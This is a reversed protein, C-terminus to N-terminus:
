HCESVTVLEEIRALKAPGIGKVSLLDSVRKFHGYRSRHEVIKEAIGPGIGPLSTLIARDSINLDIPRFLFVARRPDDGCDREEGIMGILTEINVPSHGMEVRDAFTGYQGALFITLAIFSLVLSHGGGCSPSPKEINM